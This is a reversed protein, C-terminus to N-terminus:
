YSDIPKLDTVLRYIDAMHLTCNISKFFIHQDLGTVTKIEWLNDDRRFYSDIVPYEQNVIVYEKLSPLKRYHFFKDGRDFAATSESLVEMILIPNVIAQQDIDSTQPNDCVVSVDPYFTRRTADIRIKLDSNFVRCEKKGNRLEIGLSVGLNMGILSHNPTGGAMAVIFGDHYEHKVDSEKELALYAEYSYSSVAKEAM